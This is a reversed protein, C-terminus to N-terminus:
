QRHRLISVMFLPLLLIFHILRSYLYFPSGLGWYVGLLRLSYMLKLGYSLLFSKELWELNEELNEAPSDRNALRTVGSTSYSAWLGRHVSWRRGQVREGLREEGAKQPELVRAKGTPPESLCRSEDLVM